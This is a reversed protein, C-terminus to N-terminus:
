KIETRIYGERVIKEIFDRRKFSKLKQEMKRALLLTPYEAILKVEFKGLRKTTPNNGIRHQHFRRKPDDTSGIYFKGSQEHQLIYVFGKM